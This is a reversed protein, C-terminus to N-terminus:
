PRMRCHTLHISICLVWVTFSRSLLTTFRASQGIIIDVNGGGFSTNVLAGGIKKMEGDGEHGGMVAYLDNPWKIRVKEGAKQGLVAPARCAEVVALAFLYQLFVFRHAPLAHVALRLHVSFLLCGPPSLWINAGRGRGAL